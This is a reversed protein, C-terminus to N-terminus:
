RVTPNTSMHNMGMDNDHHMAMGDASTPQTSTSQALSAGPLLCVWILLAFLANIKM